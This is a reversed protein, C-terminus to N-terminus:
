VKTVKNFYKMLMPSLIDDENYIFMSTHYMIKAVMKMWEAHSRKNTVNETPVFIDIFREIQAIRSPVHVTKSEKVTNSNRSHFLHIWIKCPVPHKDDEQLTCFGLKSKLNQRWSVVCRIIIFSYVTMCLILELCLIRSSSTSQLFM